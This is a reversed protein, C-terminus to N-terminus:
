TGLTLGDGNSVALEKDPLTTTSSSQKKPSGTNQDQQCSRNKSIHHDTVIAFPDVVPNDPAQLDTNNSSEQSWNKALVFSQKTALESSNEVLNAWNPPVLKDNMYQVTTLNDDFVVHYQPSVHGTSPNFVLAVNGAHFM